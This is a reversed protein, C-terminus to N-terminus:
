RRQRFNDCLEVEVEFTFLKDIDTIKEDWKTSKILIPKFNHVGSNDVFELYAHPSFAMEKLWNNEDETIFHSKLNIKDTFKTYYNVKSETEHKYVVGTNKLTPKNTTYTKREGDASRKSNLTFNFSDYAGYENEFHIRYVEYFCSNQVTFYLTEGVAVNDSRFCRITYTHVANTIVPQVGLSFEISDINNLSQPATALRVLRSQDLILSAVNVVKFTGVLAGAIDYTDVRMYDVDTPTDTLFWHWGLDTIQVTPTKFNTLFEGKYNANFIYDTYETNNFFDIWRHRELSAGWAYRDATQIIDNYVVIPDDVTLRYEEGIEVWYKVIGDASLSFGNDSAYDVIEENVFKAVIQSVDQLGFSLKPDPAVKTRIIRTTLEKNDNIYIDFVYKYDPKTRTGADNQYVVLEIPNYVPAFEKLDTKIVLAM